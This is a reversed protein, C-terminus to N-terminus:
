PLLWGWLVGDPAKETHMQVYFRGKRLAELQDPTLDFTGSIMGRASKSVTLELIEPGRAGTAVGNHISAKTAPATLGEFSGSVTLKRGALVASVSGTGALDPLTKATAALASLRTKFTEQAQAHV